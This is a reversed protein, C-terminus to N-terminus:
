IYAGAHQTGTGRSNGAIDYALLRTTMMNKAPSGSQLTYVGGATGSTPGSAVTAQDTTYLPDGNAIKSGIGGYAQGFSLGGGGSDLDETYNAECDVGHHLAFNGTKTGDSKFVDGKTNLQPGLNAKVSALTHTRATGTTDDYLLNWRGYGEDGATTNHHMVLHVCNGNASDATIFIGADGANTTITPADNQVVAAYLSQGSSATVIRIAPNGGGFPSPLKNNYVLAGRQANDSRIGASSANCGIINYGDLYTGNFSGSLGRLIRNDGASTQAFGGVFNTVTMGFVSLHASSKLGNSCAISGFDVDVNRMQIHMKRAAEGAMDVDASRTIKVDEFFIASETLTPSNPNGASFPRFLASMTINAAARSASTTTRTIKIAAADQCVYVFGVTGMSVGDHVRVELGSMVNKTASGLLAAARAIAGGVTLCPTAEATAENTSVVGTADNGTSKVVIINPAAYRTTNKYFYRNTFRFETETNSALVSSSTGFHPYVEAKLTILSDDNLGSIDLTGSYVEPQFPTECSSSLGTTTAYQWATTNTGDTAQVRVCAVQTGSRANRHFPIIEWPISNGVLVRDRMGWTAIPKPSTLASSNTAGTIVDDAYVYSSLAVNNATPSAHNPYVQRVRKTLYVTDTHTVASGTEDYGARLVTAPSLSLDTPTQATPMKVYTSAVSGEELQAGWVYIGSGATGAYSSSVLDNMVYVGFFNSAATATVTMTVRWWGNGVNTASSSTPAVTGSATGTAGTTLNIAVSANTQTHYLMAFNREAAKFYCSFSHAVAATTVSRGCNHVSTTAAEALKEATTSGDPAVAANATVSTNNKAWAANDFEETYVFLNPSYVRAQWGDAAIASFPAAAATSSLLRAQHGLGRGGAHVSM